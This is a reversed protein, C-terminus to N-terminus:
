SSERRSRKIVVPCVLCVTSIDSRWNLSNLRSNLNSIECKAKEREFEVNCPVLYMKWTTFTVLIVLLAM